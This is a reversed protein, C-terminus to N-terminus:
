KAASYWIPSTWAREQVTPAVGELLPLKARFADYTSWRPTPIQLVRAYYLAHQTPDFDADVWTGTLQPSGGSNSYTATKVDVTNAVPPLKGDPGVKRDGSWAVNVIKEQPAGHAGIWGKIIQIRDLNADKPGKIATVNFRLPRKEGAAVAPLNGGMPVGFRYGNEVMAKPNADPGPLDFGAFMRIKIRVGSTAFTEKAKMADWIAGRTNSTAWVGTLAGPNLDIGGIWGGVDATRRREVTGDAAGHSGVKFNSEDTDGPTGNHSDTGGVVGYKYPNAGLTREYELGKVLGYRVFNEKQAVRGSYNAMTDANEFNAFEDAAWFKRHVESNGKVQMMEILPEFHARTKAYAGDIPRGQPDLPDFMMGKSANSNHPIAIVSAGIRELGGMWAWLGDERNIDIYSMPIEPVRIDRFFVNRHLNGGKPAASWEFAPITTFKGPQYNREAAELEIVWASKTTETGAFFPPHQPTESRNSKVVYNLFWTERDEISTMSRLEKLKDQDHGPAGAVMTSYMEGLYEAHDTVAAFDLPEVIRHVQGNVTMKEGQAFRYAGDPTLRAGGLYADLSYATHVHTEGFYAERLPNSPARAEAAVIRAQEKQMAPSAALLKLDDARAAVACLSAALLLGGGIAGHGITTVGEGKNNMNMGRIYQWRAEPRM